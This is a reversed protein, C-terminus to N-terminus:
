KALAKRLSEYWQAGPDRLALHTDFHSAGSLTQTTVQKDSAMLADVFRRNSDIIREFDREGYMVHFPIGARQAYVIPSALEDDERKQLLFKYVREEPSGPACHPYRVDLPASVPFCAIVGRRQGPASLTALAALHGGASHGSLIIREADGGHEGIHTRVWELAANVDDLQAPFRLRPALRYTGAVLIAGCEEVARAMFGSWWTYGTIWAGGHFFLVVPRKGSAEASAYIDLRQAPDSGYAVRVPLYGTKGEEVTAACADESYKAAAPAAPPSQEPFARPDILQQLTLRM